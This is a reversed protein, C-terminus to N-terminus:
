VLLLLRIQSGSLLMPLVGSLEGPLLGILGRRAGWYLGSKIAEKRAM